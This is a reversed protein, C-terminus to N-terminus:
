DEPLLYRLSLGDETRAVEAHVGFIDLLLAPTLVADPPGDAVLRGDSLVLLRDAFRAALGLDHLALVVARGDRSQRRVRALLDLQHRVDLHATPEDLLLVAPNQALAQALLARQQEGGSLTTVDREALADLGMAALAADVAAHDTAGLPSLWGVHPARGLEVLECVSFAASLDTAQRVLAVRQARNRAPWATVSRGMLEARGTSPVLGALARLLTSKGAGNPGVLAVLEGESVVLSVDRLIETGGLRVGLASALLAPPPFSRPM